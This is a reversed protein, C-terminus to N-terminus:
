NACRQEPSAETTGVNHGNREYACASQAVQDIANEVIAKNCIKKINTYALHSRSDEINCINHANQADKYEQYKV